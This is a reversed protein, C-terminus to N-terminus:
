EEYKKIVLTANHGGFGFSNSMAARVDVDRAGEPVYDLDCEPDPNTLNITSHVKGDRISLVTAVLEVAGGAGLLHGIMSKTSSIPIRAAAEGLVTKIAATELKDNHPTSTGHANIYSIDGPALGADDLATKMSRVGGEGGPAPATMHHADATAGYGAVEALVRAGRKRAHELEEFVFIGSGEGIVFGDRESDFPRSAAHPDDNRTSLAKMSAFGGVTMPTVAAEAGGTVMVDAENNQIVRLCVGMAHSASACASVVAYNPGKLGHRMSIMGPIMDIIMMPVFFPSIRSPGRNLLVEHQTEFTSIGGTGSGTVTGVRNPDERSMDLSADKIAMDAAAVGFQVCRDMRRAEKMEIFDTPEFDKVEGAIRVAFDTADFRTIAGVGSKGELCSRWFDEANLGISTVAGLGTIVVRRKEMIKVGPIRRV